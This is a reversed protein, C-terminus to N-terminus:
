WVSVDKAMFWNTTKVCTYISGAETMWWAKNKLSSGITRPTTPKRQDWGVSADNMEIRSKNAWKDAANVQREGWRDLRGVTWRSEERYKGGGIVEFYNPLLFIGWRSTSKNLRLSGSSSSDMISPKIKMHLDPLPTFQSQAPSIILTYNFWCRSLSASSSTQEYFREPRGAETQEATISTKILFGTTEQHHTDLGVGNYWQLHTCPRLIEIKYVSTVISSQKQMNFQNRQWVFM